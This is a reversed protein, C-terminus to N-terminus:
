IEVKYVEIVVNQGKRMREIIKYVASPKIELYNALEQLSGGFLYEGDKYAVYEVM